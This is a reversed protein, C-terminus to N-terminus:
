TEKPSMVCQSDSLDHLSMSCGSSALSGTCMDWILPIATAPDGTYILAKGQLILTFLDSPVGREYLTLGVVQSDEAPGRLDNSNRREPLHVPAHAASWSGASLFTSSGACYGLLSTLKVAAPPPPPTSCIDNLVGWHLDVIQCNFNCPIISAAAEGSPSASITQDARSQEPQIDHEVIEASSILGQM